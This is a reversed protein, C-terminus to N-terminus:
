HVHISRIDVHVHVLVTCTSFDSFCTFIYMDILLFSTCTYTAILVTSLHLSKGLIFLIRSIGGHLSCLEYVEM